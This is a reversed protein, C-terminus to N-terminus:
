GELLGKFNHPGTQFDLTWHQTDECHHNQIIDECGCVSSYVCIRVGFCLDRAEEGTRKLCSLSAPQQLSLHCPSGGGWIQCSTVPHSGSLQGALIVVQRQADDM